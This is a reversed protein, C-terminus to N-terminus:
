GGGFVFRLDMLDVYTYQPACRIARRGLLINLVESAALLSAAGVGISNTSVPREGCIMQDAIDKSISAVYSPIVPCVRELPVEPESVGALDVDAELVNYEELTMGRSDFVVVLGGFGIASAFLYYRGGRRAARQLYIAERFMGFDMEDVVVDCGAAFADADQQSCIGHRSSEIKGEPNIDRLHSCIVAAKNKGETAVTSCLQRNRNSAEFDGPDTIRMHGVGLRFLREALLGGVGGVGAIGVSSKRLTEQEAETLFGINRSFMDRYTDSMECGEM